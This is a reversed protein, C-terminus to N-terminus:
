EQVVEVVESDSPLSSHAWKPSGRGKTVKFLGQGDENDLFFKEGYYNVEVALRISGEAFRVM